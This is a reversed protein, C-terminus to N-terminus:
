YVARVHGRKLDHESVARASCYIRKEHLVDGLPKRVVTKVHDPELKGVHLPYTLGPFPPRGVPRLDENFGPHIDEVLNPFEPLKHDPSFGKAPSDCAHNGVREPNMGQYTESVWKMRGSPGLKESRRVEFVELSGREDALPLPVRETVRLLDRMIRKGRRYQDPEDFVTVVGESRTGACSCSM